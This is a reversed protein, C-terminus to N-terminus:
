FYFIMWWKMKLTNDDDSFRTLKDLKNNIIVGFIVYFGVSFIVSKLFEIM